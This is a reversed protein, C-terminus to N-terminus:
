NAGIKLQSVAAAAAASQSRRRGGSFTNSSHAVSQFTRCVGRGGDARSGMIHQQPESFLGGRLLFRAGTHMLSLPHLVLLQLTAATFLDTSLPGLGWVQFLKIKKKGSFASPSPTVAGRVFISLDRKSAADPQMNECM